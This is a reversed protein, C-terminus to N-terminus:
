VLLCPLSVVQGFSGKADILIVSKFNLFLSLLPETNKKETLSIVCFMNLIHEYLFFIIQGIVMRNKMNQKM